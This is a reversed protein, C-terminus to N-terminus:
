TYIGEINLNEATANIQIEILGDLELQKRIEQILEAPEAEDEIASKLGAGLYPTHRWEGKESVLILGINQQTAEGNVFDGNKILLDGLEDLMLDFVKVM